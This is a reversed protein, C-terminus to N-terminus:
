SSPQMGRAGAVKWCERAIAWDERAPVVVIRVASDAAAIDRDVPSELNKLPDLKLGLFGFAECAAARVAPSNEGIGATFGLADLGGLAGLM